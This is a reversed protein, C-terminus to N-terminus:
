IYPNLRRNFILDREARKFCKNKEILKHEDTIYKKFNDKGYTKILNYNWQQFFLLMIPALVDGM